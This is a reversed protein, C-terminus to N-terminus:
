LYSQTYIIHILFQTKQFLIYESIYNEFYFLITRLHIKIHFFVYSILKKAFIKIGGVSDTIINRQTLQM